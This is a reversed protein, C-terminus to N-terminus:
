PNENRLTEIQNAGAGFCVTDNRANLLVNRSGNSSGQNGSQTRQLRVPTRRKSKAKERAARSNIGPIVAQQTGREIQREILAPLGAQRASMNVNPCDFVIADNVAHDHRGEEGARNRGTGTHLKPKIATRTIGIRNPSGRVKGSPNGDTRSGFNGAPPKKIPIRFSVIM